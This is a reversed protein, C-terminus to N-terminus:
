ERIAEIVLLGHSTKYKFERTSTFTQQAQKKVEEKETQYYYHYRSLKISFKPLCVFLWNENVPLRNIKGNICEIIM